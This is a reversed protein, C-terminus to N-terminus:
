FIFNSSIFTQTGPGHDIMNPELIFEGRDKKLHSDLKQLSMHLNCFTHLLNFLSCCLKSTESTLPCVCCSHRHQYSLPGVGTVGSFTSRRILDSLTMPKVTSSCFVPDSCVFSCPFPHTSPGHGSPHTPLHASLLQTPWTLLLSQVLGFGQPTSLIKQWHTRSGCQSILHHTISATVTATNTIWRKM